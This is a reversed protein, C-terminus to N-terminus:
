KSYLREKKIVCKPKYLCQIKSDSLKYEKIRIAYIEYHKIVDKIYDGFWLFFMCASPCAVKYDYMGDINQKEFDRWIGPYNGNNHKEYLNPICNNVHKNGRHPGVGDKGQVRFIVKNVM